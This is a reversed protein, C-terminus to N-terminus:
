NINKTFHLIQSQIYQKLLMNTVDFPQNIVGTVQFKNILAITFRHFGDDLMHSIAASYSCEYKWIKVMNGKHDRTDPYTCYKFYHINYLLLEGTITIAITRLNDRSM